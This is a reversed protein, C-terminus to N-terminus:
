DPLQNAPRNGQQLPRRDQLEKLLQLRYQNEAQYLRIIKAPPLIDQLKKHFTVALESEKVLIDCYNNGLETIQQDSMTSEGQNFTRMLTQKEAQLQNRLNQTENYVPWFKEAEQSTLNMRKTFFAIKYADLRERNQNQASVLSYSIAFVAILVATRRKLAKRNYSSMYKVKM